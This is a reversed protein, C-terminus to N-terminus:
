RKRKRLDKYTQELEPPFEYWHGPMRLNAWTCPLYADSDIIAESRLHMNRCNKCIRGTTKTYGYIELKHGGVKGTFTPKKIDMTKWRLNNYKVDELSELRDRFSVNERALTANLSTISVISKEM